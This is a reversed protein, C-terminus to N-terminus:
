RAMATLKVFDEDDKITAFVYDVRAEWMEMARVDDYREYEYFHRRLLEMAKGKQGLLAYIAALNYSASLLTEHEKAIKLAEEQRGSDAMYTAAFILNYPDNPDLALARQVYSNAKDRVRESNWYVALNRYTLALPYVAVSQEFLSLGKASDGMHITMKGLGHLAVARSLPDPQITLLHEFTQQALTWEGTHHRYLEGLFRQPVPDAPDIKAAAAYLSRAKAYDDALEAALARNMAQTMRANMQPTDIPDSSRLEADKVTVGLRALAKQAARGKKPALCRKEWVQQYMAVAGDHDAKEKAKADDLLKDLSTERARLEARVADEVKGLRLRGKESEIRTVAVGDATLVAAPLKDTVEWKALAATDGPVVLQMGVCQASALTLARSSMLDSAKVEEKTAPFWYLILPASVAPEDPRLVKWPVVYAERAPAMGPATGGMGGGGGGGCTAYASPLTFLVFLVLLVAIRRM